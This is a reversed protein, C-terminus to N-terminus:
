ISKSSRREDAMEQGEQSPRQPLPKRFKASGKTNKDSAQPAVKPSPAPQQPQVQAPSKAPAHMQAARQDQFAKGKMHTLEASDTFLQQILTRQSQITRGQEVVLLAMLGYSVLFLVVLLPLLTQKPKPLVVASESTLSIVTAGLIHGPEAPVRHFHLKCEM